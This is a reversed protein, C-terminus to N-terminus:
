ARKVESNARNTNLVPSSKYQTCMHQLWPDSSSGIWSRRCKLYLRLTAVELIVLPAYQLSGFVPCHSYRPFLTSKCLAFASKIKCKSRVPTSHTSGPTGKFPLRTPLLKVEPELTYKTHLSPYSVTPAFTRRHWSLPIQSLAVGVQEGALLLRTM